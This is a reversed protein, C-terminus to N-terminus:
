PIPAKRNSRGPIACARFESLVERFWDRDYGRDAILVKADPAGSPRDRRPLRQGDPGRHLLILPKGNGDCVAHSM